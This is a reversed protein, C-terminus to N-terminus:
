NKKRFTKTSSIIPQEHRTGNRSMLEYPLNFDQAPCYFDAGLTWAGSTRATNERRPTSGFSDKAKPCLKKPVCFVCGPKV